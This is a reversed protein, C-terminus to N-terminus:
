GGVGGTWIPNFLKFLSNTSHSTTLISLMLMTTDRRPFHPIRRFLVSVPTNAKFKNLAKQLASTALLDSLITRLVRLVKFTGHCNM